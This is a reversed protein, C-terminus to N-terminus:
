ECRGLTQCLQNIHLRDHQATFHAMELLTTPGFISHRAPRNWEDHNIQEIGTMTDHRATLWKEAVQYGDSDCPVADRPGAPPPPAVIFPNDERRIRELRPRQVQTESDLLHCLIQIPSWENPDPHQNWYEPKVHAITSYLAGLNGRMEPIIMAPHLTTATFQELWDEHMIEHSLAALASKLGETSSVHDAIPHAHLGAQGAPKIDNKLSDGIMVAEDPEVGVRAVIEVYYAPDPKAFHMNEAHTVLAYEALDDSLGAWRLRQRIASVPYIPNTAIVVAYHQSRLWNILNVPVDGLSEICSRLYPYRQQYFALLASTADDLTRGAREAVWAFLTEANTEKPHRDQQLGQISEILLRSVQSQQWRTEFFQDALRIFEAAFASDPNYLLTNDLDLLVAKIM